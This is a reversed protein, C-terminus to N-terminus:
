SSIKEFWLAPVEEQSLTFGDIQSGSKRFQIGGFFWQDSEFLNNTIPKFHITGVRINKAVLFGDEVAFQYVVDLPKCLYIGTFAELDESSYSISTKREAYVPDSDGITVLMRKSDGTSEFSVMVKEDGFSIMQFQDEGLPLITSQSNGRVYRLTDDKLAITRSYGSKANWYTGVYEKLQKNTFKKTKLKVFDIREPETFQDELFMYATRMGLYGSYPIGSSLVITTFESDIFKFISSAYGGLTGTQYYNPVGRELHYLQQAMTLRGFLADMTEGNNLQAHTYLKAILEKSGVTPDIMNLEWKTLDSVSTYINTPGVIGYNLASRQFGNSTPEYSAATNPIFQEFNDLVVTNDMKLPKFLEQNMFKSYSMNSVKSIIQALLLQDTNSYIYQEGPDYAPTMKQIIEMAHTQTFVDDRHWGAINKLTWFDPLGSTQSLLHHITITRKYQPLEPLYIRIDDDFAIKGQSELLYIAFATFHKSLGGIQFKTDITAPIGHDLHTSGFAKQYIVKGKHIVAAAVAPHSEDFSSYLQDIDQATQAFSLRGFVITILILIKKM